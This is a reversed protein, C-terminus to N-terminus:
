RRWGRRRRRHDSLHGFESVLVDVIKGTYDFTLDIPTASAASVALCPAVLGAGLLLAKKM